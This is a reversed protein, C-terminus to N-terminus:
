SLLWVNYFVELLASLYLSKACLKAQSVCKVPTFNALCGTVKPILECFILQRVINKLQYFSCGCCSKRYGGGRHEAGKIGM